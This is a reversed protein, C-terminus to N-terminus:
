RPASPNARTAVNLDLNWNHAADLAAYCQEDKAYGKCNGATEKERPSRVFQWVSAYSIGSASPPALTKPEVCGPSPPCSDNFVWYELALSGVHARIDDATVIKVGGGEDVVEGSCYVGPHFHLSALAESWARIYVHLPEPLRGGEEMDLFIVSGPPFKERSAAAAAEQADHRGLQEAARANSVGASTRGQFLLLFGFGQQEFLARKGTWNNKKSGPPFSLWYSAFSFSKRLVPLADDGPYNNRDFGLYTPVQSSQQAVASAAALLSVLM